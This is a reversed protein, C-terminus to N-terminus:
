QHDNQISAHSLDDNSVEQYEEEDESDPNILVKKRKLPVRAKKNSKKLESQSCGMMKKAARM